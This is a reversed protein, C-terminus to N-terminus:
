GSSSVPSSNKLSREAKKFVDLHKLKIAAPIGRVTWNFVRQASCNLKRGVESPGGLADILEKDSAM